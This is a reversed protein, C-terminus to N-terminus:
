ETGTIHFRDFTIEAQPMTESVGAIYSRSMDMTVTRVETRDDIGFVRKGSIGMLSGASRASMGGKIQALVLQEFLLTFSSGPKAWPVDVLLVNGECTKVRPIEGYLYCEHQFFNLHRWRRKQHNYVPYKEGQCEFRTRRRHAVEIFLQSQDDVTEFYVCKIHWPAEIGLAATFIPLEDM